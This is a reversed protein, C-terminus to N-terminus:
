KPRPSLAQRLLMRYDSSHADHCEMCQGKVSPTHLRPASAAEHCAFWIKNKPMSLSMVTMDGHTSTVHCVGCPSQMASHVSKGTIQKTHCSTCDADKELSGPHEVATARSVAFFSFHPIGGHCTGQLLDYTADNYFTAPPSSSVAILATHPPLSNIPPTNDLGHLQQFM